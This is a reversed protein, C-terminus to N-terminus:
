AAQRPGNSAVAGRHLRIRDSKVCGHLDLTCCKAGGGAKRFETMEVGIPRFGRDELRSALREAAAPLVVNCGDSVSNLAFIEAEERRALLADPFLANLTARGAPDFAGPYYMVETDGLVTLATDLHYFRPDTLTLTVVPLGLLAQVEAHAAPETRFGTGALLIRGAPLIDGQGENVHGATAVRRFARTSFWQRYARAEAAREPYKFRSVLVRNDVVSAANAAFVMDPLDPRPEVLSVTHGLERYLDVLHEWQRMARAPDVPRTPDMWPNIAYDVAFFTPRCMLYHRKRATRVPPSM